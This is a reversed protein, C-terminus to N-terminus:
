RPSPTSLQGKADSTSLRRKLPVSRDQGDPAPLTTRSARWRMLGITAYRAALYSVAMLVVVYLM